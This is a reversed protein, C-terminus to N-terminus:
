LIGKARLNQLEVRTFGLSKLELDSLKELLEFDSKKGKFKPKLDPRLLATRAVAVIHEFAAIEKHNGSLLPSPVPLGEIERPRTFQPCELLSESFSDKHASQSNGLAGPLLRIVSELIVSAALEGGNLVYDGISVELAGTLAVFRQDVGAYRGCVLIRHMPNTAWQTAMEQNWPVGQPSFVVVEHAESHAAASRVAKLLPEVKMVMGDGGGFTRDDVTHHNDETFSRPNIAELEFLKKDLAQGVLGHRTSEEIMQPFLTIVSFKM